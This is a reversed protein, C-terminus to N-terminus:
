VHPCVFDGQTRQNSFETKGFPFRGRQRKAESFYVDTRSVGFPKVIGSDKPLGFAEEYAWCVAEGSVSVLDYNRHGPYTDLAKADDGFTKDAVSYGWKKFAGCAHWLQVLKTDRRIAFAGFVSNSESLFICKATAMDWILGITRIVVTGWSSSSVKLYHVHINYNEQKVADYLLAFDGSLREGHNEVFIIKDGQVKRSCGVYYFVPYILKFVIWKCISRVM